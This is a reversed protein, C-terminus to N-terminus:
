YFYGMLDKVCKATDVVNRVNQSSFQVRNGNLMVEHNQLYRNAAYTGGAIAATTAAAKATMSSMSSDM